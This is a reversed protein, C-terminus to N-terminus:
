KIEIRLPQKKSISGKLVQSAIQDEINTEIERRISRAGFEKNTGLAALHNILEATIDLNLDKAKLRNNLNNLMLKAVEKLQGESLPTFIISADFRNIFEPSFIKNKLIYDTIKQLLQDTPVNELINQRIYEAAANSTAIIITNRCDVKKSFGDTIYGEDLLTLFLNLILPPAKEMEDFLLVGYPTERLKAPLEGTIKEKSSGILRTLGDEGQYQSMDFRLLSNPTSFYVTNLAKATETKGVGTPGLFLFSGIPRNKSSIDLRSRRLSGSILRIAQHQNIIKKHLSEELDILKQAEKDALSGLPIKLKQSLYSDVDESTIFVGKQATSKFIITEELLEIAKGPFPTDTLFRNCDTITKELAALTVTAPYKKELVPVISLQLEALVLDEGPPSIRIESFIKNLTENRQIFNLYNDPTTIGIIGVSRSAFKELVATLDLRGEGQSVYKDIEDIMLIINGAVVAEELLSSFLAQLKDRDPVQAFLSHMDLTLIRKHALNPECKGLFLYHALTELLIHRGIGAEGIVLVNNNESKLLGQQISKIEEERGLLFPFPSPNKTLDRSFKDLNVTYGYAWDTGIGTLSRIREASLLLSPQQSQKILMQYWRYCAIIYKLSIEKYPKLDQLITVLNNFLGDTNIGAKQLPHSATIPTFQQPNIGLRLLIFNGTVTRSFKNIQRHPDKEEFIEQFQNEASKKRELYLPYTFFPILPWILLAPLFLLPLLLSSLLGYFIVTTRVIFGMIASTVNFAIVSTIDEFRFGAKKVVIQRKWPSFLSKLHLPVSFFYIPFLFLNQFITFIKNWATQYHWTLYSNM